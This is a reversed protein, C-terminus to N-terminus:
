GYMCVYLVYNQSKFSESGLHKAIQPENFYKVHTLVLFSIDGEVAVCIHYMFVYM